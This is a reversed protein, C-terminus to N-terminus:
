YYWKMENRNFSGFTEIEKTSSISCEHFGSIGINGGVCVSVDQSQALWAWVNLQKSM